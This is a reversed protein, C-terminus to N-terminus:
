KSLVFTRSQLKKLHGLFCEESAKRELTIQELKKSGKLVWVENDEGSLVLEMKEAWEEAYDASAYIVADGCQEYLHTSYILPKQMKLAELPPINTPGFYTPMVVAICNRYLAAMDKQEVFGLFAINKMVNLQSAQKQIEKLCGMEGGAFVVKIQVGKKGLISIAQVIRIHNKHSWFQAPYFFYGATLDFKKMVDEDTNNDLGDLDSINFPMVLIKDPDVGYTTTLKKALQDSDVLTLSAKPLSTKLVYERQFFVGNDNIEPFEPFDRHCMDLVTFIYPTHVLLAANISEILFYVYDASLSKLFLEFTSHLKLKLLFFKLFNSKYMRRILKDKITVKFYISSIGRRKLDLVAERDTCIVQVQGAYLLSIIQQIANIGQHYAGGNKPSSEFM